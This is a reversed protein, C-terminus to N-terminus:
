NQVERLKEKENQFTATQLNQIKHKKKLEVIKLFQLHWFHKAM